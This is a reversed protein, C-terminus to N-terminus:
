VPSISIEGNGWVTHKGVGTWRAANLFPLFPQFQGQYICHGLLGGLPHSQHKRISFRDTSINRIDASVMTVAAAEAGLGTYNLDLAGSGYLRTLNSIRDRARAFLTVFTPPSNPVHDRGKIDAPTLFDVRLASPSSSPPVFSIDLAALQDLPLMQDDQFITQLVCGGEDLISVSQLSVAGRGPGLGSDVLRSLARILHLPAHPHLDFLNLGVRFCQGAPFRQGDLHSVRLVFPRPSDAFGSPGAGIASPEFLRSYTCAARLPCVRADSCEPICSSHKLHSGLAGRIVNAAKGPPFYVPQRALFDFALPRLTLTRAQPQNPNM